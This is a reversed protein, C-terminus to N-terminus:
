VFSTMGSNCHMKDRFLLLQSPSPHRSIDSLARYSLDLSIFVSFLLSHTFSAQLAPHFFGFLCTPSSGDVLKQLIFWRPVILLPHFVVFLLLLPALSREVRRSAPARHNDKFPWREGPAATLLLPAASGQLSVTIWALPGTQTSQLTPLPNSLYNLNIIWGSQDTSWWRLSCALARARGFALERWVCTSEVGAHKSLETSHHSADM